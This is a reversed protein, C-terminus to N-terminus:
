HKLQAENSHKNVNLNSVFYRSVNKETFDAFLKELPSLVTLYILTNINNHM